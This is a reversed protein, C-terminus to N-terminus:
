PEPVESGFRLLELARMMLVFAGIAALGATAALLLPFVPGLGLLFLTAPAALAAGGGVVGIAPRDKRLTVLAAFAALVAVLGLLVVAGGISALFTELNPFPSLLVTSGNGESGPQLTVVIGETGTNYVPSAFTDVEVPGYGALTVNIAIGGAPVPAFDFAGTPGTVQSFTGGGDETLLVRAGVAPGSPIGGRQTVVEGSVSYSAGSTAEFGYYVLLGGFVAALAVVAVLAAAAVGRVPWRPPQPKPLMPYLGPYVEWSYLPPPDRPVVAPVPAHCRPCPFWQTPPEPALVARLDQGCAPCRIPTPSSGM